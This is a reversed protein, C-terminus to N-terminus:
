VQKHGAVTFIFTGGFLTGERARRELDAMLSRAEAATILEQCAMAALAEPLRMEEKLMVLNFPLFDVHVLIDTLGARRFMGPLRRGSWPNVPLGAMFAQVKGATTRDDLDLISTGYDPDTVVVPAGPRSVRVLEALADEPHSLHQFLGEARGGDFSNDPFPLATPDAVEFRVPLGTGEARRRAEVVREPSWDVGVIEGAGGLQRAMAIADAGAGCGLDLIRRGPAVGAMEFTQQKSPRATVPTTPTLCSVM